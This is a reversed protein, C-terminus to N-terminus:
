EKQWELMTEIVQLLQDVLFPKYILAKPHLGEQRCKVIAHGPDYGFGQMLVLPVRGSLIAKLQVYLGHGSMDPLRTDSIFVQYPAVDLSSRVMALAQGGTRATEVTYDHRELISHASELIQTDNDVVLVRARERQHPPAVPGDAPIAEGPALGKGVEHILQRIDRAQRLISKLRDIIAPDYGQYADIVHVTDNLIQDIPLAVLRHITETVRQLSAVDQAQLLNLTNLAAAVNRAYIELFMQDNESFARPQPSEVNFTGIVENHLLLPVTLSSRAEAFAKLYLSDELVDECLYSKGTAAVFGTVGNGQTRAWLERSAAEPELGEALLPNLRGTLPDLLRIEVVNFDLVAQTHHLINSKLLEVREEVTMACSEEPSLDTLEIGAQYIAELKQQQRTEPTIHRVVAVLRGDGGPPGSLLAADLQCFDKDGIQLKTTTAEGTVLATALPSFDPGLILPSGLAEYFDEGVVDDRGCLRRFRANGWVLKGDADLVVVGEPLDELLRVDEGPVGRLFAEPLSSGAWLVAACGGVRFLQQAQGLDPVEVIEFRERLGSLPEAAPQSLSGVVIVRPKASM